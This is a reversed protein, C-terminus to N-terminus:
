LVSYDIWFGAHEGKPYQRTGVLAFNGNSMDVILRVLQGLFVWHAIFPIRVEGGNKWIPILLTRNEWIM